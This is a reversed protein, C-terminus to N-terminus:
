LFFWFCFIEHCQGKLSIKPYNSFNGFIYVFCNEIFFFRLFRVKTLLKLIIM